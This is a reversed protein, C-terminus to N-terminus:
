QERQVLMQNNGMVDMSVHVILFWRKRTTLEYNTISGMSLSARWKLKSEIPNLCTVIIVVVSFIKTLTALEIQRAWYQDYVTTFRVNSTMGQWFLQNNYIYLTAIVRAPLPDSWTLNFVVHPCLKSDRYVYGNINNNNNNLKKTM